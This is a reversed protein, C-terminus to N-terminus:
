VQPKLQSVEGKADALGYKSFSRNLIASTTPNLLILIESTTNLHITLITNKIPVAKKIGLTAVNM